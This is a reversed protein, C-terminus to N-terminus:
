LYSDSKRTVQRAKRQRKREREPLRYIERRGTCQERKEDRPSKKGVGAGRYVFAPPPTKVAAAVVVARALSKGRKKERPAIIEGGEGRYAFAAHTERFGWRQWWDAQSGGQKSVPSRCPLLAEHFGCRYRSCRKLRCLCALAVAEVM